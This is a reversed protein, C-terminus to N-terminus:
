TLIIKRLLIMMLLILILHIQFFLGGYEGDLSYRNLVYSDLTHTSDFNGIWISVYNDQYM